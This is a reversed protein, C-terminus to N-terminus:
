PNIYDSVVQDNQPFSLVDTPANKGRWKGNLESIHQDGCLVVSLEAPENKLACRVLDVGDKKLEGAHFYAEADLDRVSVDVIIWDLENEIPPQANICRVNRIQRSRRRCM